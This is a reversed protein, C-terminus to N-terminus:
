SAHSLYKNSHGFGEFHKRILHYTTRFTRLQNADIGFPRELQESTSNCVGFLSLAVSKPLGARTPTIGPWVDAAVHASRGLNIRARSM